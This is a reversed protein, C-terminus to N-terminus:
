SKNFRGRVLVGGGAKPRERECRCIVSKLTCIKGDILECELIYATTLLDYHEDEEVISLISWRVSNQKM